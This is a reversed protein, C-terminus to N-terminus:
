AGGEAAALPAAAVLRKGRRALSGASVLRAAIASAEPEPMALVRALEPETLGFIAAQVAHVVDRAIDPLASEVAARPAEVAAPGPVTAARVSADPDCALRGALEGAGTAVALAAAHRRLAPSSDNAAVELAQQARDPLGCLADLAALRVLVEADTQLQAVLDAAGAGGCAALARVMQARVRAESESGLAAALTPAASPHPVAVLHRAAQERRIPDRASLGRLCQEALARAATGQPRAPVSAALEMAPLAVPMPPAAPKPAAPLPAAISLRGEALLARAQKV